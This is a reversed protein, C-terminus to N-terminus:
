IQRRMASVKRWGYEENQHKGLAHSSLTGRTRNLASPTVQKSDPGGPESNVYNKSVAASIKQPISKGEYNISTEKNVHANEPYETLLCSEELLHPKSVMTKLRQPQERM